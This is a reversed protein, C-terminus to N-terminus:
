KLPNVRRVNKLHSHNCLYGNQSVSNKTQGKYTAVRMYIINGNPLMYWDGVSLEKFLPM